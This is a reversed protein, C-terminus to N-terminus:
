RVATSEPATRGSRPARSAAVTRVLDKEIRRGQESIESFGATIVVIGRSGQAICHAVVQPVADPPVAVIALDVETPVARISPYAKHGRIEAATPHIPYLPGSFGGEVLTKWGRGAAKEASASAGIMAINAPNFIRDFTDDRM